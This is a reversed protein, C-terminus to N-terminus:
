SACVIKLLQHTIDHKSPSYGVVCASVCGIGELIQADTLPVEYNMSITISSDVHCLNYILRFTVEVRMRM